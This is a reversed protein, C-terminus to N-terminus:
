LFAFSIKKQTTKDSMCMITLGDENIYHFLFEELEFTKKTDPEIREMLRATYQQFNGSYDTYDCLVINSRKSILSYYLPM